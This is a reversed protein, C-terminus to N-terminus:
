EPSFRVALVAGRQSVLFEARVPRDARAPDVPLGFAALQARPVQSAVVLPRPEAAITELATLAVFAPPQPVAAPPSVALGMWALVLAGSAALAAPIGFWLVRRRPRASPAPAPAPRRQLRGLLVREDIRAAIASQIWDPPSQRALDDRAVALWADFPQNPRNM